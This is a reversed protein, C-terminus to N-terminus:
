LTWTYTIDTTWVQNPKAPNFQPDLINPAIPYSHKNDTTLVFRHKHKVILGLKKMLLHTRYTGVKFGEKRLRKMMHRSGM